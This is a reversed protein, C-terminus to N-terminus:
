KTGFEPIIKKSKSGPETGFSLTAAFTNGKKSVFDDAFIKGGAALKKQEDATFTHGCWAKPPLDNGQADTAGFGTLKWGVFKRKNFEQEELQGRCVFSPDADGAAKKKASIATITLEEGRLLAACEDDTFHHGSWDRSFKVQRNKPVWLGEFYEKQKVEQTLGLEGRMSTANRQMTQIDNVVWGAVVGIVDEVSKSGAAVERMEQYVLETVGLDGIHTDPLLRYAMDGYETMTIKGRTEVMLPYKNSASEAKTVEAYTNTRTAGTGVDRKELQKMLWKMTPHEPRKNAGEFVFPDANTGLGSANEDEDEDPGAKDEFFVQKWGLSRPVAASGKFSPYKELHGLQSEYEYDEAFMSLFSRALEEYIMKGIPGYKTAVDELSAPVKLGPRNAGHAGQDKVHTKRAQRHTLLSVDVGIVAAIQNVLPLMEKFQEETITKDETRPYSAWQDTEYMSQYIKLVQDAKVGKSSLRSSLGALDLLRPPATTKNTKSDVIVPSASYQQPVQAASDFKPEDSDTYVVGNEDRFRNEFFPKKVYDNYAKLQEGVLLLMASKLRGQRLVAKQGASTTAVRTFQMTLWDFKSRTLAKKYEDFNQLGGIIEKRAVFAKQISAEAEDTFYMRTLKQPKIGLEILPEAFLLGGEGTPDVDTACVIETASRAKQALSRLIDSIGSQTSPKRKWQIQSIDWPMHAPNWSKYQEALSADVQEHPEAFEYLHGRLAVIEYDAGQYTGTMGGLAKAFNRAASPKEAVVLVSAM